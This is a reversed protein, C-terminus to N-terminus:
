LMAELPSHDALLIPRSNRVALAIGSPSYFGGNVQTAHIVTNRFRRFLEADPPAADRWFADLPGQFTLGPLNYIPKSLAIAPRGQRLAAAGVTSNVTVVGQAHALLLDLDGDELFEVRDSLGLHRALSHISRAHDELGTDLPHNKVVLRADGPAYAAFSRLVFAAVEAMDGFPSDHIIQADSSLQLPLLFYRRGELLLRDITAAASRSAQAWLKPYRIAYGAYQSLASRPNHHRYLPFLLPDAVRALHYAADHMARVPLGSQFPEGDGCDPLAAGVRMFWSPDKPLRSNGNVGGRELTVWHPRFYGEEFVHTRIGLGRAARIAPLHVPRRDGFLVLDTIAHTRFKEQAFEQLAGPAGHFSWAPRHRWYAADGGNFNIKHIRHGDAALQGALRSFFPSAVGQLFLFARQSTM